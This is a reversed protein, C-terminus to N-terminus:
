QSHFCGIPVIEHPQCSAYQVWKGPAPPSVCRFNLISQKLPKKSCSYEDAPNLSTSRSAVPQASHRRYRGRASIALCSYCRARAAAGPLMAAACFFCRLPLDGAFATAWTNGESQGATDYPRTRIQRQIAVICVRCSVHGVGAALDQLASQRGLRGSQTASRLGAVRDAGRCCRPMSLNGWIAARTATSMSSDAASVTLAVESCDRPRRLVEAAICILMCVAVYQTPLGAEFPLGRM